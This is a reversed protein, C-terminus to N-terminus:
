LESCISESVEGISFQVTKECANDFGRTSLVESIKFNAREVIARNRQSRLLMREYATEDSNLNIPQPAIDPLGELIDSFESGDQSSSTSLNQNGFTLAFERVSAHKKYKQYSVTFVGIGIVILAAIIIITIVTTLPLTSSANEGGPTDASSKTSAIIKPRSKTSVNSVSRLSMDKARGLFKLYSVKAMGTFATSRYSDSIGVTPLPYDKVYLVSDFLVSLSSGQMQVPQNGDSTSSPIKLVCYDFSYISPLSQEFYGNLFTTTIAKLEDIDPSEQEQLTLDFKM